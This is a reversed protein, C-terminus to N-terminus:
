NMYLTDHHYGAEAAENPSSFMEQIFTKTGDPNTATFKDEPLLDAYCYYKEGNRIYAAVQRTNKVNAGGIGFVQTNKSSIIDVDDILALVTPKTIANTPKITTMNYPIYVTNEFGNSYYKDVREMLDDSVRKNIESLQENKGLESKVKSLSGNQFKWYSDLGLNLAYYSDGKKMSYPLKPTSILEWEQDNIPRSEYMYYGDFTCVTFVKIYQNRVLEKNERTLPLNYNLCFNNVFAEVAIDPDLKFKGWNAYDMGLDGTDLMEDVASDVAYNVSSKLIMDDLKQRMLSQTQTFMLLCMSMFYIPVFMILSFTRSM